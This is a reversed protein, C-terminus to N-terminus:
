DSRRSGYTLRKRLDSESPHTKVIGGSGPAARMIGSCEPYNKM